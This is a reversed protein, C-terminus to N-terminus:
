GYANRVDLALLLAIKCLGFVPGFHMKIRFFRVLVSRYTKQKKPNTAFDNKYHSHTKFVRGSFTSCIVRTSAPFTFLLFHFLPCLLCRLSRLRFALADFCARPRKYGGPDPPPGAKVSASPPCAVLRRQRGSDAEERRRSRAAPRQGQGDTFHPWHQPLANTVRQNGHYNGIIGPQNSPMLSSKRTKRNHARQAKERCNGQGRM